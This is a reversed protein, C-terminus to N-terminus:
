TCCKDTQFAAMNIKENARDVEKRKSVKFDVIEARYNTHKVIKVTFINIKLRMEKKFIGNINFTAVM